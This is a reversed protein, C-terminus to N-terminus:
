WGGGFLVNRMIRALVFDAGALFAMLFLVCFIVVLSSNVVEQMSPWTVKRLEQETEILLDANKPREIWRLILALAGAFLVLAIVFAPTLQVGIVPLRPLDELLPRGMVDIRTALERRLSAAGFYALVVLAWFVTTRALRGQDQKYGAM